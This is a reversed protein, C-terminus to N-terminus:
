YSRQPQGVPGPSYMSASESLAKKISVKAFYASGFCINMLVYWFKEAGTMTAAGSEALAKKAPIKGFYAGAFAICGMVYWFNEAGSRRVDLNIMM